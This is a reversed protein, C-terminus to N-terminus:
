KKKLASSTSFFPRTGFKKFGETGGKAEGPLWSMEENSENRKGKSDVKRAGRIVWSSLSNYM